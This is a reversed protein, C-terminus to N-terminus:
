PPRSSARCPWPKARASRTSRDPANDTDDDGFSNFVNDSNLFLASVVSRRQQWASTSGILAVAGENSAHPSGTLASGRHREARQDTDSKWFCRDLHRLLRKTCPCAMQPLVEKGGMSKLKKSFDAVSNVKLMPIATRVPNDAQKQLVNILVDADKGIISFYKITGLVGETMRQNATIGIGIKV